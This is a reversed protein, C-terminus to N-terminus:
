NSALALTTRVNPEFRTNLSIAYLLSKINNRTGWRIVKCILFHIFHAPAVNQKAQKDVGAAAM